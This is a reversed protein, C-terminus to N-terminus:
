HSRVKGRWKRATRSNQGLRLGKSSDDLKQSGLGRSTSGHQHHEAAGTFCLSNGNLDFSHMIPHLIWFTKM